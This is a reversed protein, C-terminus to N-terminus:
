DRKTVDDSPDSGAIISKSRVIAQHILDNRGLFPRGYLYWGDDLYKNVVTSLDCGQQHPWILGSAVWYKAKPPPVSLWRIPRRLTTGSHHTIACVTRNLTTLRRLCVASM